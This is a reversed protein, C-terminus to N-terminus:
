PRKRRLITSSASVTFSVLLTIEVLNKSAYGFIIALVVYSIVFTFAWRCLFEIM